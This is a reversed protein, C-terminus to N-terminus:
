GQGTRMKAKLGALVKEPYAPLKTIRVGCANHIANIIAAHPSTLPAEGCGGAGFPGHPRPTQQYHLELGDPVDRVFPFGAGMMTSHKKIDEFDESLALGIGQALGGYFQGDVALQSCIEGVDAFSSMKVVRTKGTETDVEVEALFLCYQYVSFPNSQATELDPPTTGPTTYQGVHRTPLKDVAMKEYTRYTGDQKKMAALLAECAAKIAQGTVVQQRSGASPGSMPALSMDNMVLRIKEPAINLPRLSEHATILTGVDAGQGPDEWCNFITVGEATLEAWAESSDSGDLGCCYVGTSVGVGRRKTPTTEEQARAIAAKYLPRAKDILGPLVIVDPACGTPTTDGERYVNKYRLELPDIGIKEALEDMLVESAFESQPSGFARFACGWSHNTYVTRGEGRISPINYGAGIFQAGRVTVADGFEAYPGHDVTWDSEMALLKGNEDAAMKVKMFFPSRKGTYTQQQYWDYRLTVPRGTAMCAVGLLAEMTPSLKYGFMAGVGPPNAIVLKDPAIGIGPQIMAYHLHLVTSKSYIFLVGGENMYAVGVDPELVMHPQRQTYFEDEVVYPASAMIPKPDEGKVNKITFFVNPTGPHIELADPAMAAPASMYAPLGELDIKVKDAAARANAETDACVIAVADGYQFVKKDCLIPRDLGDGKNTPMNILGIIRNNGKVDKHTLVKFVGPMKEAESTDISIINAHFAKAQAIALHLAGPLKLGLDAGYDLTGTVRGIATPRPYKTGWIKGDSPVKFALDEMSIEGRIVRAAEMTADVLPKYGTCRCANHHKQFWDRVEERTPRPNEDLLAKASVIFGPSCFGCQAGNHVIWAIQLAHLNQPTGVGEITTIVAFEPVQRMKVICSRIVKGNMIVSCAGCEGKGCGVKTGTLFLNERLVNALTAGPEAIAVREVGNVSLTKKIM